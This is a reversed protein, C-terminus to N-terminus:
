ENKKKKGKQFGLIDAPGKQLNRITDQFLESEAEHPILYRNFANSAHKSGGRRIQEPSLARSAGTVTSHKTLPYVTIPKIGLNLCAKKTWTNLIRPHYPTGAKVGSRSEHHRFFFLDPMARPFSLIIELEEPWLRAYKGPSLSGEKKEKVIIMSLELNIDKEKVKMLEGPRVEPNHSLIHIALWIKVDTIKRIESIIEQQAELTVIDRWGLDFAVHPIDPMGIYKERKSVWEFFSHLTSRLMSRTKSTIPKGTRYHRHDYEAPPFLFDEIRGPEEVIMKINRNGFWAIAREMNRRHNSLTSKKINQRQKIELWKEALNEFGLPNSTQYDRPDLIEDPSADKFRLGNLFQEAVAIDPFRKQIYGGQVPYRVRFGNSAAIDQHVSCFCGSRRSDYLMKLGCVPCVQDTYINGKM